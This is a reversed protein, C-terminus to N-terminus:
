QPCRERPCVKELEDDVEGEEDDDENVGAQGEVDEAVEVQGRAGEDRPEAREDLVPRRRAVHLRAIRIRAGGLHGLLADADDAPVLEPRGVASCAPPGLPEGAAMREVEAAQAHPEFALLATRGPADTPLDEEYKEIRGVDASASASRKVTPALCGVSRGRCRVRWRRGEQEGVPLVLALVLVPQSAARRGAV